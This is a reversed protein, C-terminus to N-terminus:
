PTVEETQPPMSESSEEQPTETGPLVEQNEQAPSNEPVVESPMSPEVDSKTEPLPETFDRQEVVFFVENLKALTTEVLGLAGGLGTKIFDPYTTDKLSGQMTVLDLQLGYLKESFSAQANEFVQDASLAMEGPLGKAILERNVAEEKSMEVPKIAFGKISTREGDVVLKYNGEPIAWRTLDDSLTFSDNVCPATAVYSPDAEFNTGEYLEIKVDGACVGKMELTNQQSLLEFSVAGHATLPALIGFLFLFYKYRNM